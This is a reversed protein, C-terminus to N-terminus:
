QKRKVRISLLSLDSDKIIRMILYSLLGFVFVGILVQLVLTLVSTGVHEGFCFVIFYMIVSPFLFICTGLIYKGYPFKCNSLFLQILCVFVEASVTAISVGLAGYLPILIYNLVINIIAGLLISLSYQSDKKNPILDQNRVINALTSFPISVALVFILIGSRTFESGWFVPAFVSSIGMLGASMGISLGVMFKISLQMYREVAKSEGSIVMQSIKPLMVSGFSFVVSLPINVIKEANEYFGLETEMGFLGLMIKDTYKYIGLSLVPIFLILMPKIHSIVAKCKPRKFTVYKRAMIFLIIQNALQSGAMLVVYIWFDEQKNTLIFLLAVSILKILASRIVTIKFQEIGFFFWSVDFLSALVVMGQIITINTYQKEFFCYSIYALISIISVFVHLVLIESYTDNMKDRDNRCQAIARNGYFKIGLMAFMQFYYAVSVTYSYIGLYQAGFTRAIYPSTIFPLLLVLIEYGSQYLMNKKISSKTM